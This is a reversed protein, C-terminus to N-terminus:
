LPKLVLAQDSVQVGRHKAQLGAASERVGRQVGKLLYPNTKTLLTSEEVNKTDKTSERPFPENSENSITDKVAAITPLDQLDKKPNVNPKQNNAVPEQENALLAGDQAKCGSNM